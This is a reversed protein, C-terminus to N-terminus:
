KWTPKIAALLFGFPLFLVVNLIIDWVSVGKVKNIIAYYDWFPMAEIRANAFLGRCIVTSCIVVFLYEALLVLFVFRTKNSGTLLLCGIFCIIAALILSPYLVIGPVGTQFFGAFNSFDINNIM